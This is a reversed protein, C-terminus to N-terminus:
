RRRPKRRWGPAGAGAARLENVQDLPLFRIGGRPASFAPLLDAIRERHVCYWRRWQHWGLLEGDFPACLGGSAVLAREEAPQLGHPWEEYAVPGFWEFFGGCTVAFGSWDIALLSEQWDVFREYLKM